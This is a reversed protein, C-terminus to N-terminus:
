IDHGKVVAWFVLVKQALEAPSARPAIQDCPTRYDSIKLGTRQLRERVSLGPAQM